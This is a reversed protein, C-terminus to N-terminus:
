DYLKPREFGADKLSQNIRKDIDDVVAQDTEKVGYMNFTNNIVASKKEPFTNSLYSKKDMDRMQGNIFTQDDGGSNSAIKYGVYGLGAVGAAALLPAGVTTLLGAGAAGAGIALGGRLIKLGALLTVLNSGIEVGKAGLTFGAGGLGIAKALGPNKSTFDTVGATAEALVDILSKLPSAMEQEIVGSFGSASMKLRDIAGSLDDTLVRAKEAVTDSRLSREIESVIYDYHNVWQEQGDISVKIKENVTSLLQLFSAGGSRGFIAEAVSLREGSGLNRKDMSTQLERLLETFDRVNGNKDLPNVGLSRLEKQAGGTPSSLGQVLNVLGTGAMEGKIGGKGLLAAFGAISKFSAGSAQAYPAIYKFTYALDKLDLQTLDAVTSLTNAVPTMSGKMPMKFGSVVGSTLNVLDGLPMDGVISTQLLSRVDRQSIDKRQFGTKALEEFGMLVEEPSRGTERSLMLASQFIEQSARDFGARDKTPDIEPLILKAKVRSLAREISMGTQASSVFRGGMQSALDGISSLATVNAAREVGRLRDQVKISRREEARQRREERETRQKEKLLEREGERAEKERRRREREVRLEIEHRRIASKAKKEEAEISDSNLKAQEQITKRVAQAAVPNLGGRRSLSLTDVGLSAAKDASGMASARVKEMRLSIEARESRLRYLDEKAKKSKFDSLTKIQEELAKDQRKLSLLDKSAKIYKQLEGDARRLEDSRIKIQSIKKLTNEFEALGKTKGQSLSKQVNDFDDKLKKLGSSAEKLPKSIEDDGKIKLSIKYDKNAL